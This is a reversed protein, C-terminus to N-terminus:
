YQPVEADYYGGDDWGGGADDSWSDDTWQNDSYVEGEYSWQNDDVAEGNWEDTWEEGTGTNTGTNPDTNSDTNPDTASPATTPQTAQPVTASPVYHSMKNKACTSVDLNGYIQGSNNPDLKKTIIAQATRIKYDLDEAAGLNVKIKGQYNLTIASSDTVDFGVVGSFENKSLSEAVNRLVEPVAPDDFKVYSGVETASTDGCILEPLGEPKNETRELVRGKASLLLYNNGEVMYYAPKADTITITITDPISFDVRADEVYAFNRVIEEPTSNMKAIFINQQLSVNSYNIIHDDYYYSCGEVVIKETKFLVTLSLIVGIAIVSLLIAATILIRRIRVQRSTMPKKNRRITESEQERIIKARRERRKKESYEDIYYGDEFDQPKLNRIKEESERRFKEERSITQFKATRGSNVAEEIKSASPKKPANEPKNKAKASSKKARKEQEKHFKQAQRANEKRRKALEKKEKSSLSM